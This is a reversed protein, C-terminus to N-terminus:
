KPFLEEKNAEIKGNPLIMFSFASSKRPDYNNASAAEGSITYIYFEEDIHAVSSLVTEGNSITGAIVKKSLVELKNNITALIYEYKLLSGKWYVLTHFNKSVAIRFCPVFETFEDAAEWNSIIFANVKESFPKNETGFNTSSEETLTLPPKEQPFYALIEKIGPQSNNM